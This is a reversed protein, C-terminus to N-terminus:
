KIIEERGQLAEICSQRMQKASDDCLLSNVASLLDNAVLDRPLIVYDAGEAYMKRAREPSEASVVIKAKPALDKL